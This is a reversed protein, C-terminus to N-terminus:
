KDTQLFFKNNKEYDEYFAIRNNLIKKKAKTDYISNLEGKLNKIQSVTNELCNTM